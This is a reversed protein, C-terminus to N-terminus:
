PNTLFTFSNIGKGVDWTGRGRGVRVGVGVGVGVDRWRRGREGDRRGLGTGGLWSRRKREDDDRKREEGEQLRWRSGSERRWNRRRRQKGTTTQAAVVRSQKQWREGDGIGGCHAGLLKM